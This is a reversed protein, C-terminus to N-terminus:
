LQSMWLPHVQNKTQWATAPISSRAVTSCVTCKKLSNGYPIAHYFKYGRNVKTRIVIDNMVKYVLLFRQNEKTVM